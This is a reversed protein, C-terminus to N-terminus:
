YGVYALTAASIRLIRNEGWRDTRAAPAALRLARECAALTAGTTYVDDVLLIHSVKQLVGAARGGRRVAFSGRVNRLRGERDFGTQSRTRRRRTVLRRCLPVGLAAALEGAIVEAQNYGRTWRRRRHLPVPVVLDVDAFLPSEALRRGLLRAAYRGTGFDRHYKLSRTLNRYGGRYYFLAAALGPPQYAPTGEAEDINRQLMANFAESMPNLARKWFLTEPLDARCCTCLRDEHLFLPRGCCICRRPMVLDAIGRLLTKIKM